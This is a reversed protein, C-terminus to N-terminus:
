ALRGLAELEKMGAENLAVGSHVVLEGSPLRIVVMNRHLPANIQGRIVWLSPLLENFSGHPYIRHDAM